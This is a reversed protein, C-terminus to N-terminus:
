LCILQMWHRTHLASRVGQPEQHSYRLQRNQWVPPIEEGSAESAAFLSETDSGSGVDRGGWLHTEGQASFDPPRDELVPLPQLISRTDSARVTSAQSGREPARSRVFPRPSAVEAMRGFEEFSASAPVAVAQGIVRSGVHPVVVGTDEIASEVSEEAGDESLEAFRNWTRFESVEHHPVCDAAEGREESEPDFRRPNFGQTQPVLM